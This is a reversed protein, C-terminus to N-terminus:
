IKFGTGIKKKLWLALYGLGVGVAFFMIGMLAIQWFLMFPLFLILGPALAYQWWKTKFVPVFLLGLWFLYVLVFGEIIGPEIINIWTGMVQDPFFIGYINKGISATLWALIAVGLWSLIFYVTKKM